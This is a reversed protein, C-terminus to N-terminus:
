VSRQCHQSRNGCWTWVITGFLQGFEHRFLCIALRCEPSVPIETVTTKEIDPRISKLIFNFTKRSVRSAKKFRGQDNTVWVLEWWGTNRISRRCSRYCQVDEEEVSQLLLWILLCVRALFRKKMAVLTLM